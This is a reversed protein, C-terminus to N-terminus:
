PGAERGALASCTCAPSRERPRPHRFSAPTLDACASLLLLGIMMFPGPVLFASLLGAIVVGIMATDQGVVRGGTRSDTTEPSEGM